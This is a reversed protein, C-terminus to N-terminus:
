EMEPASPNPNDEDSSNELNVFNQKSPGRKGPFNGEVQCRLKPIIKIENM